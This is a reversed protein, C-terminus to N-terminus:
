VYGFPYESPSMKFSCRYYLLDAATIKLQTTASVLQSNEKSDANRETLIFKGNISWLGVSSIRVSVPSM